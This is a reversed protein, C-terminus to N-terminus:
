ELDHQIIRPSPHMCVMRTRGPGTVVFKHPMRPPVTFIDGSEADAEEGDMHFRVTGELVLWTESYPHWHLPPGEGVGNDTAFFSMGAGYEEGEFLATTRPAPMFDRLKLIELM